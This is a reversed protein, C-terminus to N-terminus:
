RLRDMNRLIRQDASIRSIAIGESLAAALLLLGGGGVHTGCVYDGVTLDLLGAALIYATIGIAALTLMLSIYVMGKQLPMNRFMFVAVLLLVAALAVPILLWIFDCATWDQVIRCSDAEIIESFGFPVFIFIALLAAAVIMFLTQFRQIVMTLFTKNSNATVFIFLGRRNDSVRSEM